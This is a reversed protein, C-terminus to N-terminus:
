KTLLSWCPPPPHHSVWHAPHLKPLQLHHALSKTTPSSSDECATAGPPPCSADEKKSQCGEHDSSAPPLPTVEGEYKPTQEKQKPEEYIKDKPTPVTHRLCFSLNACYPKVGSKNLSLGDGKFFHRRDWFFNFNDIFHVSHVDCATSLWRNLAFLRSFRECGGRVPPLPGSFFVEVNLSSVTNLLNGLDRKLVESQRKMIDNAGTHLVLFKLTPNEAVISLIRDTMNSVTDDPFCLVKTNRGFMSGVNTIASDGVVLTQPGTLLKGQLKRVESKRDPRVRRQSDTFNDLDETPFGPDQLLPAFRNQTKVGPPKPANNSKKGKAKTWPQTKSQMPTSSSSLAPWGTADSIEPHQIRGTLRRGMDPSKSRPRAGLANWPPSISSPNSGLVCGKEKTPATDYSILETNANEQGSNQTLPMTSENGCLGNVEANIELRQIKTELM